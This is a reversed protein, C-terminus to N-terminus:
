CELHYEFVGHMIKASFITCGSFEKTKGRLDILDQVRDFVEPEIIFPHSDEVYYWLPITNM